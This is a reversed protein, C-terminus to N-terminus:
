IFSELENPHHRIAKSESKVFTKSYKSKEDKIQYEQCGRVRNQQNDTKRQATQDADQIKFIAAMKMM